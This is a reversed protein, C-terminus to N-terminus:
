QVYERKHHEHRPDALDTIQGKRRGGTELGEIWTFNNEEIFDYNLGFRVIELDKPDYGETGDGWRGRKLDELNKRLRDSMLLGGPDFDGCYLLVCKLGREEAEKFRRAYDARLLISQWGKCNAVPIHYDKCVPQFLTVLDIKEVLMQTYYEEY